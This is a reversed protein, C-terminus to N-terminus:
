AAWEANEPLGCRITGVSKAEITEKIMVPDIFEGEVHVDNNDILFKGNKIAIEGSTL